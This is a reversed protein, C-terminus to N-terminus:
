FYWHGTTRFFLQHFKSSTKHPGNVTSIYHTNRQPCTTQAFGIQKNERDFVVYYGEMIVAGIVSGSIVCICYLDTLEPVSLESLGGRESLKEPCM